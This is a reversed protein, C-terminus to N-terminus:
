AEGYGHPLQLARWFENAKFDVTLTSADARPDKSPDEYKCHLVFLTDLDFRAKVYGVMSVENVGLMLSCIAEVKGTNETSVLKRRADVESRSSGSGMNAFPVM